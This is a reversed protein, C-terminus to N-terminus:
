ADVEVKMRRDPTIAVRAQLPWPSTSTNILKAIPQAESPKIYGLHREHWVMVASQVHPHNRERILLVVEAPRPFDSDVNLDQFQIGVVTYSRSM